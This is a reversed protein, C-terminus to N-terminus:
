RKTLDAARGGGVRVLDRGDIELTEGVCGTGCFVTDLALVQDDFLVAAGDVPLPAIAGPIMDLDRALDDAAAVKLDARSVGLADAIKKYDARSDGRLAAIAYSGDPLRFALSKIMARADFPLVAKAAAYTLIPAHHHLRYTMDASRLLREIEPSM